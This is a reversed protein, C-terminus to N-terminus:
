VSNKSLISLEHTNEYSLMLPLLFLFDHNESFLLTNKPLYIIKQPLLNEQFYIFITWNISKQQIKPEQTKPDGMIVINESHRPSASKPLNQGHLKLRRLIIFMVLACTAQVNLLALVFPIPIDVIFVM